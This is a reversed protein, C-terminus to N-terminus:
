VHLNTLVHPLPEQLYLYAVHDVLSSYQTTQLSEHQFLMLTLYGRVVLMKKRHMLKVIVGKSSAKDPRVAVQNTLLKKSIYPMVLIHM